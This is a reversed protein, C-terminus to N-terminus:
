SASFIKGLPALLDPLDVPKVLYRSNEIEAAMRHHKDDEYGSIFIVPTTVGAARIQRMAELGSVAGGLNLDMLIVDFRSHLAACVAKEGSSLVQIDLYGSEELLARLGFAILVEDDVILVPHSRVTGDNM